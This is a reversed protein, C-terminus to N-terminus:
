HGLWFLPDWLGKHLPVKFWVEFMLFFMTMLCAGLVLSWSLAYKGLWRMFLGIYLASAVYIGILQIAAVYIAAPVFVKLVRGLAPREVFVRPGDFKGVVANALLVLACLCLTSGIYFPFYGSRPGDDAWLAGLRISDLLVLSGLAFIAIAAVIEVLRTGIGRASHQGHDVFAGGKTQV